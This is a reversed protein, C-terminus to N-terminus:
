ADRHTIRIFGAALAVAAYAAFVALVAEPALMHAEPRTTYIADGANMPPRAALWQDRSRGRAPEETGPHAPLGPM